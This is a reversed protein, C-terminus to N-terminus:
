HLPGRNYKVVFNLLDFKLYLISLSLSLSLFTTKLQMIIFSDM